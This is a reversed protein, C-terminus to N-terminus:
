KRLHGYTQNLDYGGLNMMALQWRNTGPLLPPPPSTPSWYSFSLPAGRTGKLTTKFFKWRADGGNKCPPGERPSKIVGSQEFSTQRLASQFEKNRLVLHSHGVVVGKKDM